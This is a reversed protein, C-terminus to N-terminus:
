TGMRWQRTYDLKRKMRYVFVFASRSSGAQFRSEKKRAQEARTLSGRRPLVTSSKPPFKLEVRVPQKINQLLSSTDPREARRGAGRRLPISAVRESEPLRDVFVM